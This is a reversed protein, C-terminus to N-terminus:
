ATTIRQVRGRRRPNRRRSAGDASPASPAGPACISSRSRTSGGCPAWSSTPTSGPRGRPRACGAGRRPAGVMRETGARPHDMEVLSGRAAVQPHEVVQAINNIAGMPIGRPLLIAEWEEYTRTLFVEQLKAILADRNKVRDANSRFRPDDTMEPCGIASCFVKWLKESGVALALDRTG